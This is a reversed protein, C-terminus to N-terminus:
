NMLTITSKSTDEGKQIKSNFMPPKINKFEGYIEEYPKYKNKRKNDDSSESSDQQKESIHKISEESSNEAKHNSIELTMGKRKYTTTKPFIHEFEKNKEDPKVLLPFIM